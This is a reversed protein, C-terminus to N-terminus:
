MIPFPASLADIAIGTLGANPHLVDAINQAATALDANSATNSAFVAILLADLTVLAPPPIVSVLPQPVVPWIAAPSLAIAGWYATIGTKMAVAGTTSLGTLGGIMAVKAPDLSGPNAPIGAVTAGEFYTHWANAFATIASSEDLVPTLNELETALVGADLTM